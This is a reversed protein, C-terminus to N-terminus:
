TLVAMMLLFWATTTSSSKFAAFMVAEAFPVTSVGPRLTRCFDPSWLDMRSWPHPISLRISSYLSRHRPPM